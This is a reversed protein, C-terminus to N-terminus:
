SPAPFGFWFVSSSLRDIDNASLSLISIRPPEMSPTSYMNMFPVSYSVSWASLLDFPPLDPMNPLDPLAVDVGVDLGVALSVDAGVVSLGLLDGVVVFGVTFGLSDGVDVGELPGVVPLGDALGLLDGVVDFGATFGLRDGVAVGELPGVVPLGDALGLLFGVVDIAGM